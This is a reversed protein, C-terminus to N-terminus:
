FPQGFEVDRQSGLSFGPSFSFNFKALAEEAQRDPASVDVQSTLQIQRRTM